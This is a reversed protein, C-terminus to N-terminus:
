NRIRIIQVVVASNMYEMKTPGLTTFVGNSYNAGRGADYWCGDGAYVITHGQGQIACIDGAVLNGEALLQSVSKNVTLIDAYREILTRTSVIGKHLASVDKLYFGDNYVEGSYQGKFTGSSFYVKGNVGYGAVTDWFAYRAVKVNTPFIGIDRFALNSLQACDFSRGKKADEWTLYQTGKYTWYNGAAYDSQVQKSFKELAALFKKRMPGGSTNTNTNTDTGSSNKAKVTVKCSAKKGSGDLAKVTITVTGAKLATVKGAYNITAVSRDSSSWVLKKNTANAPAVTVTLQGTKGATVTLTSKDLKVSTVPQTVTVKCKLKTSGVKATIVATGAKKATVKGYRNVAAVSKKSSSFTVTEQSGTVKLRYTKGVALTLTRKNLRVTAADAASGIAALMLLMLLFVAARRLSRREKKKDDM